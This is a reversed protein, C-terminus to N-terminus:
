AGKKRLHYTLARSLMTELPAPVMDGGAPLLVARTGEYQFADGFRERFEDVLTTIKPGAGPNKELILRPPLGATRVLVDFRDLNDLYNEGLQSAAGEPVTVATNQDCVTIEHGQASFYDYSARGETDFGLLAIKM